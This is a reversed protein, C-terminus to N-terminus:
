CCKKECAFLKNPKGNPIIIKCVREYVADYEPGSFVILLIKFSRLKRRLNTIKQYFEEDFDYPRKSMRDMKISIDVKELSPHSSLINLFTEMEHAGLGYYGLHIKLSKLNKLAELAQFVISYDFRMSYREQEAICLNTLSNMEQVNQFLGAYEQPLLHFTKFKLTQLNEQQSAFKFADFCKLKDTKSFIEFNLYKIVPFSGLNSFFGDPNEISATLTLQIHLYKLKEFKKAINNLDQNATPSMQSFNMRIKLSKLSTTKSVTVLVDSFTKSTCGPHAIELFLSQLHTFLSIGKIIQPSAEASREDLQIQFYPSRHLNSLKLM